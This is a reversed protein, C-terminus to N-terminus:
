KAMERFIANSDPSQLWAQGTLLGLHGLRESSRPSPAGNSTQLNKEIRSGLTWDSRPLRDTGPVQKRPTVHECRLRRANSM